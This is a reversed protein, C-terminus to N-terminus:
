TDFMLNILVKCKELFHKLCITTLILVKFISQVYRQITSISRLLDYIAKWNLIVSMLIFKLDNIVDQM